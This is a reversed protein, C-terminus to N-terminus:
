IKKNLLKGLTGFDIEGDFFKDMPSKNKGEEGKIAEEAIKQLEEFPNKGKVVKVKGLLPHNVFGYEVEDKSEEREDASPPTDEGEIIAKMERLVKPMAQVVKLGEMLNYDSVSMELGEVEIKVDEAVPISVKGLKFNMNM